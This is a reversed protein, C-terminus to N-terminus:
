ELAHLQLAPVFTPSTQGASQSIIVSQLGPTSTRAGVPKHDDQKNAELDPEDKNAEHGPELLARLQKLITDLWGM